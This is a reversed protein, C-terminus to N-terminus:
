HKQENTEPDQEDDHHSIVGMRLIREQGNHSVVIFDLELSDNIQLAIPADDPVGALWEILMSKTLVDSYITM